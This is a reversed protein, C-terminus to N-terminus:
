NPLYAWQSYAPVGFGFQFEKCAEAYVQLAEFQKVKLAPCSLVAAVKKGEDRMELTLDIELVVPLADIYLPVEVTIVDPLDADVGKEIGQIKATYVLGNIADKGVGNHLEVKTSAKIQRLLGALKAGDVITRRQRQIFAALTPFDIARGLVQSWESFAPHVQPTFTIRETGEMAQEDLIAFFRGTEPDCMVFTLNNGHENLYNVFGEMAKFEHARPPTEARVPAKRETRVTLTKISANSLDHVIDVVTKDRPDPQTLLKEIPQPKKDFDGM